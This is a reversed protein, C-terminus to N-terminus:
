RKQVSGIIKVDVRVGHFEKPVASADLESHVRVALYHDNSTGSIGVSHRPFKAQFRQKAEMVASLTAM